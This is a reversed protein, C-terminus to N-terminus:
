MPDIILIEEQRHRGVRGCLDTRAKAGEPLSIPGAGGSDEILSMEIEVRVAWTPASISLKVLVAAAGPLITEILFL